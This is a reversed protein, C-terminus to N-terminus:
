SLGKTFLTLVYFLFILCDQYFNTYLDINLILNISVSVATNYSTHFKKIIEAKNVRLTM